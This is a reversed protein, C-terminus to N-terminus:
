ATQNGWWRLGGWKATAAAKAAREVQPGVTSNAPRGPFHTMKFNRPDSSRMNPEASRGSARGLLPAKDIASKLHLLAQANGRLHAVVVINQGNDDAGLMGRGAVLAIRFVSNAHGLFPASEFFIFPAARDEIPLIAETSQDAVIAGELNEIPACSAANRLGLDLGNQSASVPAGKVTLAHTDGWQDTL